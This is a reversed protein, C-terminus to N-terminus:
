GEARHAEQGPAQDQAGALRFVRILGSSTFTDQLINVAGKGAAIRVGTYNVGMEGMVDVFEVASGLDDTLKQYDPPALFATDVKFGGTQSMQTCLTNLAQKVPQGTCDIATGALGAPNSFRNVGFWSDNSAPRNSIDPNWGAWGPPVIVSTSAAMVGSEGLVHTNTPAWTGDGTVTVTGTIGDSVAAIVYTGADLAGAAATAKSM